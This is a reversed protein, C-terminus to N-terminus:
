AGFHKWWPLGPRLNVPRIWHSDQDTIRTYYGHRYEVGGVECCVRGLPQAVGLPKGGTTAEIFSHVSIAGSSANCRVEFDRRRYIERPTRSSPTLDCRSGVTRGLLGLWGHAGHSSCRCSKCWHRQHCDTANIRGPAQPLSIGM